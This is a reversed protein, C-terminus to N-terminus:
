THCAPSPGSRLRYANLSTCAVGPAKTQVTPQHFFFPDSPRDSKVTITYAYKHSIGKRLNPIALEAYVHGPRDWSDEFRVPGCGMVPTIKLVGERPDARYESVADLRSIGDQLVTVECFVEVKSIAGREDFYVSFDISERLYNAEREEARASL